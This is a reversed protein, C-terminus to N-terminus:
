IAKAESRALLFVGGAILVVSLMVVIARVFLDEINAWLTTGLSVATADQTATASITSAAIAADGQSTAQVGQAEWDGQLNGAQGAAAGGTVSPGSLGAGVDPDGGTQSPDLVTSDSSSITTNSAVAASNPDALSGPDATGIGGSSLDAAYANSRAYDGSQDAPNEYTGILSSQDAGFSSTPSMLSANISPYNTALDYTTYQEQTSLLSPDLGNEASWEELGGAGTLRSGTWQSLGYGASGGLPAGITGGENINPIGGSEAGQVSALAEAGQPSYGQGVYYNYLDGVRSM